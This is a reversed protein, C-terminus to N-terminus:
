GVAGHYRAFERIISKYTLFMRRCCYRRIGLEDLVEKESKGADVLKKYDEYKHAIVAGCTFCRVPFM